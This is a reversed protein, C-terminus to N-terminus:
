MVELKYNKILSFLFGLLFISPVVFPNPLVYYNLYYVFLCMIFLLEGLLSFTLKFSLKLFSNDIEDAVLQVYNSKFVLWHHVRIRYHGTKIAVSHINMAIKLPFIVGNVELKPFLVWKPISSFKIIMIKNNM